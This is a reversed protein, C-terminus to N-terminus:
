NLSWPCKRPVGLCTGGVGVFVLRDDLVVPLYQKLMTQNGQM